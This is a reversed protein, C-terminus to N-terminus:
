RDGIGYSKYIEGLRKNKLGGFYQLMNIDSSANGEIIDFGDETVVVDWAILNLYPHKYAVELLRTKILEFNPVVIGEIKANTDPHRDYYKLTKKSTAKGIVGTSMDIPAILGGRCVNDGPISENCGFRHFTEVVEYKDSGNEKAVIIRLTNVAKDFIEASYKANKLAETIISGESEKIFSELKNIGVKIGNIELHNNLYKLIHLGNGGGSYNIRFVLGNSEKLMKVIAKTSVINNNIDLLKGNKISGIIKPTSVDDKFVKYFIEKDDLIINYVGNIRRSKWRDVESIYDKMSNDKFDYKMYDDNTFGYKYMKLRTLLPVEFTNPAKVVRNYWDYIEHYKQEKIRYQEWKKNIHNSYMEELKIVLKGM